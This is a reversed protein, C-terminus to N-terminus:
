DRKRLMSCVEVQLLADERRYIGSMLALSTSQGTIVMHLSLRTVDVDVNIAHWAPRALVAYLPSKM